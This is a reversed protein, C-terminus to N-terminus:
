MNSVIQPFSFAVKQYLEQSMGTVQMESEIDLFFDESLEDEQVKQLHYVCYQGLNPKYEKHVKLEILNWYSLLGLYNRIKNYYFTDTPSHGLLMIINRLTFSRDEKRQTVTMLKKLILYTRLLDIEQERRTSEKSECSSSSFKILELLVERNINIWDEAYLFIHEETARVLGYEELRKLANYFTKTSKIGLERCIQSININKRYIYRHDEPQLSNFNSIGILYYYIKWHKSTINKYMKYNERTQTHAYVSDNM